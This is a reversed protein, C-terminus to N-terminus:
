GLELALIPLVYQQLWPNDMYLMLRRKQETVYRIALEMARCFGPCTSLIFQLLSARDVPMPLTEDGCCNDWYHCLGALKDNRVLTDVHRAGMQPGVDAGHRRKSSRNSTAERIARQNEAASGVTRLRAQDGM